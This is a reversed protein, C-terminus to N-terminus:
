TNLLALNLRVKIVYCGMIHGSQFLVKAIMAKKRTARPRELCQVAIRQGKKVVDYLVFYVKSVLASIWMLRRAPSSYSNCLTLLSVKCLDSHIETGEDTILVPAVSAQCGNSKPAHTVCTGVKLLKEQNEKGFKGNPSSFTFTSLLNLIYQHSSMCFYAYVQSM